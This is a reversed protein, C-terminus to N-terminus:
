IQNIYPKLIQAWLLYGDANLHLGEETYAKSLRGNQDLFHPHLDVLVLGYDQALQKLGENVAAIQFDKNYHNPYRDFTNNVPLLTQLYIKTRPSQDQIRKVIKRHNKLITEVPFNRSIDNIGILLFVKAPNGEVVEDLRELIGFTTDGSIGRNKCNPDELLEHWKTGATLSNGLFIIDTDANPYTKFQAVQLHFNRPRHTTDYATEVQQAIGSSLSLTAGILFILLKKM